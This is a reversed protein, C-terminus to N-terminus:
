KKNRQYLKGGITYSAKISQWWGFPRGQSAHLTVGVRVDLGAKNFLVAYADTRSYFKTCFYPDGLNFQPGYRNYLPYLNKGAFLMQDISVWRHRFSASLLAGCPTHWKGEDRARQLQVVAGAQLRLQPLVQWRLLPNITGDDSVSEDDGANYRKALHNYQAHGGLSWRGDADLNVFGSVTAVFAERRTTSRMQRWDLIGQVFGRKGRHTVALGRIVPTCYRLSDSMLYTPLEELLHRRPVFGLAVQTREGAFHYYVAPLVKYGDGHDTVPQFWAVGGMLRHRTDAPLTVGLEPNLRIYLMTQDPTLDDGGERNEFRTEFDVNWLVDQAAAGLVMLAALLMVLRRNRIVAAM